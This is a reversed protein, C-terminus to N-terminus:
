KLVWKGDILHGMTVNSSNVFEFTGRKILETIEIFIAKLWQDRKHGRMADYFSPLDVNMAILFFLAKM